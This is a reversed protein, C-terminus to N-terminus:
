LPDRAIGAGILRRIAERGGPQSVLEADLLGRLAEVVVAHVHPERVHAPARHGRAEAAAVALVHDRVAEASPSQSSSIILPAASPM